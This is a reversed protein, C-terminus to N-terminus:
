SKGRVGGPIAIHVGLLKFSEFRLGTSTFPPMQSEMEQLGHYAGKDQGCQPLHQQGPVVSGPTQGEEISQWTNTTPLTQEGEAESGKNNFRVDLRVAINGGVAKAKHGRNTLSPCRSARQTQTVDRQKQTVDGVVSCM